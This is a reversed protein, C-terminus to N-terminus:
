YRSAFNIKQNTILFKSFDETLSLGGLKKAFFQFIRMKDNKRLCTKNKKSLFRNRFSKLKRKLYIVRIYRLEWFLQFKWDNKYRFDSFNMLISSFILVTGLFLALNICFKVVHLFLTTKYFCFQNQPTHTKECVGLSFRHWKKILQSNKKLEEHNKLNFGRVSAPSTM